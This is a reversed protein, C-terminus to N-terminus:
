IPQAVAEIGLRKRVEKAFKKGTEGSRFSDIVVKKPRTMDIYEILENFDAHDSFAFIYDTENLQKYLSDFLWGSLYVRNISVGGLHRVNNYLYGRIKSSSATHTFYIFWGDRMVDEAEKSGEQYLDGIKAGYSEAIKSMKYVKYPAIFPTSVGGRRLIDMVEQQKGYYAHIIVPGKSLLHTVFDILLDEIVDRFGRIYEPDGYTAETVLIDPEEIVETGRGPDKFDGTYVITKDDSTKYVLMASGLIHRSRRMEILENTEEIIIKDGYDVSRRKSKPVFVDLVDLLDFTAKHAIIERMNRISENIDYLHDSHAHSVFRRLVIDHGDAVLANRIKVGGRSNIYVHDQHM